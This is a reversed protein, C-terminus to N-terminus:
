VVTEVELMKELDKVRTELRSLKETAQSRYRNEIEAMQAEYQREVSAIKAESVQSILFYFLLTLMIALSLLALIKNKKDPHYIIM